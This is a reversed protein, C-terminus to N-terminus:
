NFGLKTRFDSATAKRYDTIINIALKKAFFPQFNNYNVLEQSQKRYKSLYKLTIAALNVYGM